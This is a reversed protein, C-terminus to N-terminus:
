LLTTLDFIMQREINENENESVLHCVYQKDFVIEYFFWKKGEIATMNFRVDIEPLSLSMGRGDAKILAEKRTWFKYFQNVPEPNGSITKWEDTSWQNQFDDLNINEIKEVDVGVKTQDSIACIVYKGSHSLNFEPGNELYPKNYATLKLEKLIEKNGGHKCLGNILLLKGLLSLQADEWNKFRQIKNLESKPLFQAREYQTM